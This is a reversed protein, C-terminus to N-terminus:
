PSETTGVSGESIRGGSLELVRDAAAITEPRHAIVIRFAGAAAALQRVSTRSLGSALLHGALRETVVQRQAAHVTMPLTAGSAHSHALGLPADPQRSTSVPM